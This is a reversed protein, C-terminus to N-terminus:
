KSIETQKTHSNSNNENNRLLSLANIKDKQNKKYIENLLMTTKITKM